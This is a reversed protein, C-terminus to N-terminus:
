RVQLSLDQVPGVVDSPSLDGRSRVPNALDVRRDLNPWVFRSEVGGVGEIDETVVFEDNVRGVVECGAVQDVISRHMDPKRDNMTRHETELTMDCDELRMVRGAISADERM